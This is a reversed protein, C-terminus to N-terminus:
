FSRASRTRICIKVLVLGNRSNSGEFNVFLPDYSNKDFVFQAVVVSAAKPEFYSDMGLKANRLNSQAGIQYNAM